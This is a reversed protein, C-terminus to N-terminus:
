EKPIYKNIDVKYTEFLENKSVEFEILSANYMVLLQLEMERTKVLGDMADRVSSAAFRGRKLNSLMSSYYMEAQKRAEKAENYLQYGASVNEIKTTVDDKVYRRTMELKQKSQELIWGANREDAKQNTDNLPYSMSLKAKYSPYKMVAANSYADGASDINSDMSSVSVSGKLSPLSSNENMQLSLEANELSRVANLYDVRKKFATKIAAESNIEPLKDSLIVKEQMSIGNDVNIDRCFKRIAKRYNQEAQTVSAKASAVLSNWYNIEFKESLGINVKDAVISRVKKTEVLMMRSNDLHNQSIVVSWYDTMVMFAIMSMSYIYADKKMQTANQLIKDMKKNNYGFANKLFEQEITAFIVPSTIDYELEAGNLSQVPGTNLKTSTHSVGAVVTTGTEFSKAISVSAGISDNKKGNDAYLFEPYTSSSIVGEANVFPSYKANYKLSDTDAMAAEYKSIYIDPNLEIAKVIAESLTIKKGDIIVAAEDSIEVSIHNEIIGDNGKDAVEQANISSATVALFIMAILLIKHKM